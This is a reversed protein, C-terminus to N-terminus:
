LDDWRDEALVQQLLKELATKYVSRIIAVNREPKPGKEAEKIKKHTFKTMTNVLDTCRDNITHKPALDNFTEQKSPTLSEANSDEESSEGELTSIGNIGVTVRRLNDATGPWTALNTATLASNNRLSSYRKLGDHFRKEKQFEYMRNDIRQFETSYALASGTQKLVHLHDEATKIEDIDSFMRRIEKKFGKWTSFMTQTAVMSGCTNEHKFYDKLFPEVWRLAEGRLYSSTELEKRNSSYTNPLKVRLTERLESIPPADPMEENEKIQSSSPTPTEPRGIVSGKPSLINKNSM